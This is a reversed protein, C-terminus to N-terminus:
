LFNNTEEETETLNLKDSSSYSINETSCASYRQYYRLYTHFHKQVAHEINETVCIIKISKSLNSCFINETVHSLRFYKSRNAHLLYKRGYLM